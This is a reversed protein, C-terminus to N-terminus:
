QLEDLLHELDRIIRWKKKSKKYRALIKLITKFCKERKFAWELIKEIETKRPAILQKNCHRCIYTSGNGKAIGGCIPCIVAVRPLFDLVDIGCNEVLEEINKKRRAYSIRKASIIKQVKEFADDGIYALDPDEVVVKGFKKAVVKGFYGPKGIYVPNELIRRIQQRTLPRELFNRYVKNVISTVVLYNKFKLFFNFVDNVLPGWGPAKEIWRKRKQYGLPVPLNWVRNLFAQVKSRLAYYGKIENQEEAGFAKVATIVFDGLKELDLEGTSTVIVVDYGRLQLLFGLLKLSKRGVRDIESVILKDIKGTAALALITNLKRGSFDKGSKGADILWYVRAAGIKRAITRAEAEQAELSKGERAQKATSVRSYAAVNIGEKEFREIKDISPYLLQFLCDEENEVAEKRKTTSKKGSKRSHKAKSKKDSFSSDHSEQTMGVLLVLSLYRPLIGGTLSVILFGLLFCSAFSGKFASRCFVMICKIVNRLARIRKLIRGALAFRMMREKFFKRLASIPFLKM